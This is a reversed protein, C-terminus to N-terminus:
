KHIEIYETILLLKQEHNFSLKYEVFNYKESYLKLIFNKNLNSKILNTISNIIHENNLAIYKLEKFYTKFDCIDNSDKLDIKIVVENKTIEYTFNNGFIKSSTNIFEFNLLEVKKHFIMEM